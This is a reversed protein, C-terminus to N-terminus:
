PIRARVVTGEGDPSHVELVGDVGALRDRLGALGHGRGPHAGGRGDDRVVVDLVGGADLGLQVLVRTAGSHKAVNTLAETVVFYAASERAAALREGPALRIDTEVPVPCQGAASVVAAGLGRDTLIPPAIGRSLARLEALSGQVHELSETLLGRTAESDGEALRRQAAELDMSLRVLRQQPGDHIDREIRRLTESEAGVVAARSRTLSAVREELQARGAGGLTIRAWAYHLWVLGRAMWPVTLLFVLGVLVMAAYEVALSEMGWQRLLWEVGTDSGEPLAWQYFPFAVGALGVSWWTVVVVFSATALPFFLLQYLLDLWGQRHRLRAKVWAVGREDSRFAPVAPLEHGIAALRVRELNGLTEAGALGWALTLLGLFAIVLLTASVSITTVFLIFGVVALPFGLLLYSSESVARRALGRVSTRQTTTM